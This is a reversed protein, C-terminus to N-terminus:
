KKLDFEQNRVSRDKQYAAVTDDFLTKQESMFQLLSQAETGLRNIDEHPLIITKVVGGNQTQRATSANSGISRSSQVAAGTKM